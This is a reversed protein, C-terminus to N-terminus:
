PTELTRSRHGGSGSGCSDSDPPPFQGALPRPQPRPLFVLEAGAGPRGPVQRGQGPAPAQGEAQSAAPPRHPRACGWLRDRVTLARAGGGVEALSRPRAPPGHRLSATHGVRRTEPDWSGRKGAPPGVRQAQATACQACGKGSPATPPAATVAPGVKETSSSFTGSAAAPALTWGAPPSTWSWPARRAWSPSAM